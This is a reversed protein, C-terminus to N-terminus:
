ILFKHAKEKLDEFERRFERLLNTLSLTGEYDQNWEDMVERFTDPNVIKNELYVKGDQSLEVSFQALTAKNKPKEQM